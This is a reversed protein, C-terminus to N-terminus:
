SVYYGTMFVSGTVASSGAQTTVPITIQVSNGAACTSFTNSAVLVPNAYVTQNAVPTASSSSSTQGLTRSGGSEIFFWNQVGAGGSTVATILISSAILVFARGAPITFLTTTANTKVNVGTKVITFIGVDTAPPSAATYIPFPGSRPDVRSPM